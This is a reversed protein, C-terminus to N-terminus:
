KKTEDPKAPNEPPTDEDGGSSGKGKSLPEFLVLIEPREAFRAKTFKRIKKIIKKVEEASDNRVITASKQSKVHLKRASGATEVSTAAAKLVDLDAQLFGNKSLIAKEEEAIPVLYDCFSCLAGVGRPIRDEVKFLRLKKPEDIYAARAADRLRRILSIVRDVVKIQQAAKKDTDNTAKNQAKETTELDALAAKLKTNNEQDFGEATLLDTQEDITKALNKGDELTYSILADM